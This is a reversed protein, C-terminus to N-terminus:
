HCPGLYKGTWGVRMDMKQGNFSMTMQMGGVLGDGERRVNGSGSMEGGANSCTVKWSMSDTADETDLLQCGNNMDKMLTDPRMVPDSICQQDVQEQAAGAGHMSNTSRFEWKGPKIKMALAGTPGVLLCTACAAIALNGFRM